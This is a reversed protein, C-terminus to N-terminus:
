NYFTGEVVLTGSDRNDMRGAIYTDKLGNGFGSNYPHYATSKTSYIYLSSAYTGPSPEAYIRVVARKSSSITTNSGWTIHWNNGSSAQSDGWRKPDGSGDGSWSFNTSAMASGFSLYLMMVVLFGAFLKKM